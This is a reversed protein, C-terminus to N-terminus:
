LLRAPCEPHDKDEQSVTDHALMRADYVLGSPLVPLMKIVESALSLESMNSLASANSPRRAEKLPVVVEM